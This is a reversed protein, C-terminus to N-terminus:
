EATETEKAPVAKRKKKLVIVTAAGGGAVVVGGVCWLAIAIPKFAKEAAILSDILTM